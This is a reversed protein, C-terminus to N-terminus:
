HIHLDQNRFNASMPLGDPSFISQVCQKSILTQFYRFTIKSNSNNFPLKSFEVLEDLIDISRSQTHKKNKKERTSFPQLYNIFISHENTGHHEM